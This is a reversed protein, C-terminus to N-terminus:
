NLWVIDNGFTNKIRDDIFKDSKSTWGDKEAMEYLRRKDKVSLGPPIINADGLCCHTGPTFRVQPHEKGFIKEALKSAPRWNGTHSELVMFQAARRYIHYDVPAHSLMVIDRHDTHKQLHHFLTHYPLEKPKSLELYWTAVGNFVGHHNHGFYKTSHAMVHHVAEALQLRAASPPRIHESGLCAQYNAAYLIMVPKINGCAHNMISTMENLLTPVQRVFASVIMSTTDSPQAIANRLLTNINLMVVGYKLRPYVLEFSNMAIGTGISYLSNSNVTPDREYSPLMVVGEKRQYLNFPQAM